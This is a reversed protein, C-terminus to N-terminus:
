VLKGGKKFCHKVRCYCGVLFCCGTYPRLHKKDREYLTSTFSYKGLKGFCLVPYKSIGGSRVAEIQNFYLPFFSSTTLLSALIFLLLPTRLYVPAQKKGGVVAVMEGVRVLIMGPIQQWLQQGKRMASPLPVSIIKKRKTNGMVEQLQREEARGM